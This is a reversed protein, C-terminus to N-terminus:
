DDHHIIVKKDGFPEDHKKIVTTRDGDNDKKIVTTSDQANAISVMPPGMVFAAAAAALVIKRM